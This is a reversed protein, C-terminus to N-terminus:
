GSQHSLPPPQYSSTALQRFGGTRRNRTWFEIRDHHRITYKVTPITRWAGLSGPRPRATSDPDTM